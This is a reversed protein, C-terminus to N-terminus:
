RAEILGYRLLEKQADSFPTRGRAALQQSVLRNLAAEGEDFERLRDVARTPTQVPTDKAGLADLVGQRQDAEAKVADSLKVAVSQTM